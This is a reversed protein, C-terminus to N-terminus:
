PCDSGYIAIMTDECSTSTPVSLNYLIHYLTYDRSDSTKMNEFPQQGAM